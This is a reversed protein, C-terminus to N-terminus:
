QCKLSDTLWNNKCYQQVNYLTYDITDRKRVVESMVLLGTLLIYKEFLFNNTKMEHGLQM